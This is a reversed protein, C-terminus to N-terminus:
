GPYTRPSRLDYHLVRGGRAFASWRPAKASNSDLRDSTTSVLHIEYIAGRLM